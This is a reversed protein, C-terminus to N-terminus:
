LFQTVIVGQSASSVAFSGLSIWTCVELAETCRVNGEVRELGGVLVCVVAGGGVLDMCLGM